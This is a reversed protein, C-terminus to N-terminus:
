GRISSSTARSSRAGKTADPGYRLTRHYGRLYVNIAAPPISVRLVSVTILTAKTGPVARDSQKRSTFDAPPGGEVELLSCKHLANAAHAPPANRSADTFHGASPGLVLRFLQSALLLAVVSLLVRYTKSILPRPYRPADNAETAATVAPEPLLRSNLHRARSKSAANMIDM